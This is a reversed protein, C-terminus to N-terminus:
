PTEVGMAELLAGNICLGGNSDKLVYKAHGRSEILDAARMLIDADNPKYLM